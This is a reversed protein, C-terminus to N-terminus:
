RGKRFLPMVWRIVKFAMFAYEAFSFVGAVRSVMGSSGLLPTRRKLNEVGAGMRYKEIEMRTQVVVRRMQIERLTLGRWDSTDTKPYPPLNIM